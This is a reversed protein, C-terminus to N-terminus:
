VRLFWGRFHPYSPNRKYCIYQEGNMCNLLIKENREPDGPQTDHYRKLATLTNPGLLGDVALEPFSSTALCQMNLATQLFKVADPVDLNMATDFLEYVVEPSIQAVKDGQIRNWFNTRYFGFVLSELSRKAFEPIMGNEGFNDIIGWGEWGPWYVRSIGMYTEGGPDMRDINYGGEESMTRAFAEEFHDMIMIEV